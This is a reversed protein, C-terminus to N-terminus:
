FDLLSDSEPEEDPDYINMRDQQKRSKGVNQNGDSSKALDNVSAHKVVPAEKRKYTSETDSSLLLECYTKIAAAQEKYTSTGGAEEQLLSDKLKELEAEMKEVVIRAPINM